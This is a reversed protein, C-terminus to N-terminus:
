RNGNDRAPHGLDYRLLHLSVPLLREKRVVVGHPLLLLVVQYMIKAYDNTINLEQKDVKMVRKKIGETAEILYKANLLNVWAMFFFLVTAALIGM